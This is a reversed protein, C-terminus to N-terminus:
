GGKKLFEVLPDRTKTLGKYALVRDSMSELASIMAECREPNRAIATLPHFYTRITFLASNFAPFGTLTQREYRMFTHHGVHEPDYQDLVRSQSWTNAPHHNLTTDTDVGWAFRIFPGKHICADIIKAATASLREIEAVPVHVEGFDRGIKEAPDWHNPFCLHILSLWDRGTQPDQNILSLDEQVQSAALDFPDLFPISYFSENPWSVRRIRYGPLDLEARMGILQNHFLEGDWSFFEPYEQSLTELIFRTAHSALEPDLDATLYYKALNETRSENKAALYHFYQDDVMFRHTEIKGEVPQQGLVKLGAKVEYLGREIPFYDAVSPLQLNTDTLMTNM